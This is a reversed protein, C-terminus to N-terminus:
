KIEISCRSLAGRRNSSISKSDDTGLACNLDRTKTSASGFLGLRWWIDSSRTKSRKAGFLGYMASNTLYVKFNRERQYRKGDQDVRPLRAQHSFRGRSIQHVKQITQKGM